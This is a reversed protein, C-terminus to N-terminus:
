HNRLCITDENVEQFLYNYKKKSKTSRLMVQESLSINGKRNKFLGRKDIFSAIETFTAKRNKNSLLAIVIAEHLSLLNKM